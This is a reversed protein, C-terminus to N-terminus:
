AVDAVGIIELVTKRLLFKQVKGSPTMPLDALVVLHEPFYQRALRASMLLVWGILAVALVGNFLLLLDYHQAFRSANGTSWILLAFLALGSVIAVTLILRLGLRLFRSARRSLNRISLKEM